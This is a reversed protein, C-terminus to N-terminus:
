LITFIISRLFSRVHPIIVKDLEGFFVRGRSAILQDILGFYMKDIGVLEQQFDDELFVVDYNSTLPEFFTRNVEDTAIFVTANM